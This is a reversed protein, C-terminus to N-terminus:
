IDFSLDINSSSNNQRSIVKQKQRVIILDAITEIAEDLPKQALISKVKSEDIDIRYLINVFHQFDADIIEALKKSLLRKLVHYDKEMLIETTPINIGFQNKLALATQSINNDTSM